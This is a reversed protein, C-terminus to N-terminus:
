GLPEDDSGDSEVDDTGPARTRWRRLRALAEENSDPSVTKPALARDDSESVTTVTHCLSTSPKDAIM